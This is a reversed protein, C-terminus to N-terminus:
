YIRVDHHHTASFKSGDVIVGALFNGGVKDGIVL